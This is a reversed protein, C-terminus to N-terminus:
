ENGSSVKHFVHGCPLTRENAAEVCELCVVCKPPPLHEPASIPPPTTATSTYTPANDVSSPDFCVSPSVLEWESDNLDSKSSPPDDLPPLSVFSFSPPPPLPSPPSSVSM